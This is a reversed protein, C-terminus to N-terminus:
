DHDYSEVYLPSIGFVEETDKSAKQSYRAPKTSVHYGTGMGHPAFTISKGAKLQNKMEEIREPVVNWVGGAVPVDVSRSIKNQKEKVKNIKERILDNVNEDSSWSGSIGSDFGRQGLSYHGDKGPVKYYVEGYYKNYDTDSPKTLGLQIEINGDDSAIVMTGDISDYTITGKDKFSFGEPLKIDEKTEYGHLEILKNKILARKYAEILAEKCEGIGDKARELNQNDWKNDFPKASNIANKIKDFNDITEKIEEVSYASPKALVSAYTQYEKGFNNLTRNIGHNTDYDIAAEYRKEIEETVQGIQDRLDAKEEKKDVVDLFKRAEDVTEFAAFSLDALGLWQNAAAYRNNVPVLYTEKKDDSSISKIIPRKGSSDEISRTDDDGFGVLYKAFKKQDEPLTAEISKLKEYDAKSIGDKLGYKEKIEATPDKEGEVIPLRGDHKSFVDKVTQVFEDESLEKFQRKGNADRSRSASVAENVVNFGTTQTDKPFLKKWLDNLKKEEKENELFDQSKYFSYLKSLKSDLKPTDSKVESKITESKNKLKEKVENKKSVDHGPKATLKRRSKPHRKLYGKQEDLTLDDWERAEKIFEFQIAALHKM